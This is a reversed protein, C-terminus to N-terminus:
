CGTGTTWGARRSRRRARPASGRGPPMAQRNRRTALAREQITSPLPSASPPMRPSLRLLSGGQPRRDTRPPNAALRAPRAHDARLRPRRTRLLRRPLRRIGRGPTPPRLSRANLHAAFIEAIERIPVGEHGVAHLVAGASASELALRFLRAADDRHVAPWRNARDGVYAAAGKQRAFGIATQIFGNDCNGHTASPLRVISSRVGRGALATTYHAQGDARQRRQDSGQSGGRRRGARRTRHRRGRAPARARRPHQIRHRVALLVVERRCGRVTPLNRQAVVPALHLHFKV